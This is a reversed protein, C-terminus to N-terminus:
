SVAYSLFNHSVKQRGLYWEQMFKLGQFVSVERYLVSGEAGNTDANSSNWQICTLLYMCAYLVTLCVSCVCVYM